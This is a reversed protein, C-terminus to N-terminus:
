GKRKRVNLDQQGRERLVRRLKQHFNARIKHILACLLLVIFWQQLLFQGYSRNPVVKGKREKKKKQIPEPETKSISISNFKKQGNELGDLNKYALGSSNMRM